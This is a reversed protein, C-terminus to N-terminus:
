QNIPRRVELKGSNNLVEVEYHGSKLFTINGTYMTVVKNDKARIFEDEKTFTFEQSNKEEPHYLKLTVELPLDAGEVELQLKEYEGAFIDMKSILLTSDEFNLYSEKVYVPYQAFIEEDILYTLEWEGDSPFVPLSSVLHADANYLKGALPRDSLLLEDGTKKHKATLTLKKGSLKDQEGWLFIFVKSSGREDNAVWEKPGMISAKEPIGYNYDSGVPNMNEDLLAFYDAEQSEQNPVLSGQKQQDPFVQTLYVVPFLIFVAAIAAWVGAKQFSFKRKTKTTRAERIKMITEHKKNAEMEFQPLEKMKKLLDKSTLHEM